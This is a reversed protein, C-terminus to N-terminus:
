RVSYKMSDRNETYTNRGALKRGKRIKELILYFISCMRLTLSFGPPDVFKNERLPQIFHDRIPNRSLNSSIKHIDLRYLIEHRNIIKTFFVFSQINVRFKALIHDRFDFVKHIQIRKSNGSGSGLAIIRFWMGYSRFGSGSLLVSGSGYKLTM